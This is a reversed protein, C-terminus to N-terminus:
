RAPTAALNASFFTAVREAYEDPAAPFAGIHGAGDVIWIEAIRDGGSAQIRRLHELPVARDEAGHILFVRGAEARAVARAPRVADINVAHLVRLALKLGPRLLNRALLPSGDAYASDSVVAQLGPEQAMALLASAGGLSWGLVGISAREYGRDAVLEVAGLVDWQERLGYTCGASASRGHGRLDFLLLSYGREWLRKALALMVTRDQYRGHVLVLARVADEREIWWGELSVGDDPQPAFTVATYAMGHEAPTQAGFPQAPTTTYDKAKYVALGSYAGVLGILGALLMAVVRRAPPGRRWFRLRRVSGSLRM